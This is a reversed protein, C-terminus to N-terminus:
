WALSAARSSAFTDPATTIRPLAVGSTVVDYCPTRYPFQFVQSSGLRMDATGFTDPTPSSPVPPIALTSTTSMFCSSLLPLRSM